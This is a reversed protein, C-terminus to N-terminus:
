RGFHLRRRAYRRALFLAAWGIVANRKSLIKM